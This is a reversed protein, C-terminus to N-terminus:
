RGSVVIPPEECCEIRVVKPTIDAIITPELFIFPHKTWAACSAKINFCEDCPIGELSQADDPKSAAYITYEGLDIPLYKTYWIYEWTGDPKVPVVTFTDAIGTVVEGEAMMDTGNCSQCPGKIFLYTTRSDTNTGSIRVTEGLYATTNPQGYVYTQFTVVGKNVTLPKEVYPLYPNFPAPEGTSCCFWPEWPQVRFIFTGPKTDVTTSWEITREGNEDTVVVAYYYKGDHPAHPITDWITKICGDCEFKTMAIPCDQFEEFYVFDQGDVIMPPQLCPAGTLSGSCDKVWIVYPTNPVGQITTYTKNGRIVPNPQINLNLKDEYLTVTVPASTFNLGNETCSLMVTYQGYSYVNYNLSDKRGTDWSDDEYSGSSSDTSWYYPSTEVPLELLSRKYDDPTWLESYEVMSPNYVKLNCHFTEGTDRLLIYQLTCDEFKLDLNNGHRAAGNTIDTDYFLDLVRVNARPALVQFAQQTPVSVGDYRWWFGKGETGSFDSGIEFNTLDLGGLPILRDPTLDPNGDNFFVLYQAGGVAATVDLGKEGYLVIGQYPVDTLDATAPMACVSCAIVLMFCALIYQQLKM